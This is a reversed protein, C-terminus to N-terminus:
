FIFYNLMCVEIFQNKVKEAASNSAQLQSNKEELSKELESM